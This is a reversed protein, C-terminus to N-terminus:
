LEAVALLDQIAFFQGAGASLATYRFGNASLNEYVVGSINSTAINALNTISPAARMQLGITCSSFQSVASAVGAVSGLLKVTYRQCLILEMGYPRQEFPTAITGPELQAVSVTGGTFRVTVNAGATLTFVGGKTRATGGVTATATGTWNLVYSGGAISLGEIVQEVGGAPATIQNGNGSASFVLSQGSTVVRWRDLTYTNASGVAAGSVYARQNIAFNGNILLNRLGALQGGNLSPVTLNGTMTDGTKRVAGLAACATNQEGSTATAATGGLREVVYDYLATFAAKATARSPNGSGGVDNRAPPATM